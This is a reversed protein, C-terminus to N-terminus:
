KGAVDVREEMITRRMMKKWRLTTEGRKRPEGAEMSDITDDSM